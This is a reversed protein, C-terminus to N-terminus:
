LAPPPVYEEKPTRLRCRAAMENDPQGPYIRCSPVQTNICVLGSYDKHLRSATFECEALTMTWGAAMINGSFAFALLWSNLMM